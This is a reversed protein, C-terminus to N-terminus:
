HNALPKYRCDSPDLEAAWREDMNADTAMALAKLGSEQRNADFLARARNCCQAIRQKRTM